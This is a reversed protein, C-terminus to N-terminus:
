GGTGVPEQGDEGDEPVVGPPVGSNDIQPDHRIVRGTTVDYLTVTYQYVAQRLDTQGTLRYAGDEKWGHLEAFPGLPRVGESSWAGFDVTPIVNEPIEFHWEVQTAGGVKCPDPEVRMADEGGQWKVKIQVIQAPEIEITHSRWTLVDSKDPHWGILVLNYAYAAKVAPPEELEAAITTATLWAKHFPGHPRNDKFDLLPVIGPVLGEFTWVVRSERVYVPGPDEIIWAGEEDQRCQVKIEM